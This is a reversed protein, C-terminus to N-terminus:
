HERTRQILLVAGLLGIIMTAPLFASPFEPSPIAGCTITLPEDVTAATTYVPTNVIFALYEAEIVFNGYTAPSLPFSAEYGYAYTESSDTYDWVISSPAVTNHNIFVSAAPPLLLGGGDEDIVLLYVTNTDCDYRVYAKAEVAHTLPNTMDGWFDTALNWEEYPWGDMTGLGYAPQKASVIGALMAIIVVCILFYQTVRMFDSGKLAIM